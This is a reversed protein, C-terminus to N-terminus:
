SAETQIHTNPQEGPSEKRGPAFTDNQQSNAVNTAPCQDAASQCAKGEWWVVVTVVIVPAFAILLWKRM